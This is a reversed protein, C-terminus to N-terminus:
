LTLLFRLYAGGLNGLGWLASSTYGTSIRISGTGMFGIAFGTLALFAFFFDDAALLLRISDVRIWFTASTGWARFCFACSGLTSIAFGIFLRYIRSVGFEDSVSENGGYGGGTM